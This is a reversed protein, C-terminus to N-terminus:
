YSSETYIKEAESVTKFDFEGYITKVLQHIQEDDYGLKKAGLIAYGLCAYNSWESENGLANWIIERLFGSRNGQAKEDLWEWNEESLTLSVKKTIGLSPRGVKGLQGSSLKSRCNACLVLRKGEAIFDIVDKTSGCNVCKM